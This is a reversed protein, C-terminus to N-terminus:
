RLGRGSVDALMRGHSNGLNALLGGFTETKPSLNAASRPRCAPASLNASAGLGRQMVDPARVLQLAELLADCTTSGVYYDVSSLEDRHV